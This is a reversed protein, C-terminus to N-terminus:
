KVRDRAHECGECGGCSMTLLGLALTRYLIGDRSGCARWPVRAGGVRASAGAGARHRARDRVDGGHHAARREDGGQQREGDRLGGLHERVVVGRPLNIVRAQHAAAAHRARM